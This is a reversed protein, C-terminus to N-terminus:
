EKISPKPQGNTYFQTILDDRTNGNKENIVKNSIEFIIQGVIAAPVFGLMWYLFVTYWSLDKIILVCPIMVAITAIIISFTKMREIKDLILRYSKYIQYKMNLATGKTSLEHIIKLIPMSYLFDHNIQSILTVYYDDLRRIDVLSKQLEEEFILRAESRDIENSFYNNYTSGTKNANSIFSRYGEIGYLIPILFMVENYDTNKKIRDQIYKRFVFASDRTLDGNEKQHSYQTLRLLVASSTIGSDLAALMELQILLDKDAYIKNNTILSSLDNFNVISPNNYLLECIRWLNRDSIM